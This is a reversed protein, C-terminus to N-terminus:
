FNVMAGLKFHYAEDLQPGNSHDYIPLGLEASFNVSTAEPAFALAFVGDVGQGGYFDGRNLPSMGLALASDRGQIEGTSHGDLAFSATLGHGLARATSLSLGYVNGLSYNNDNEGIRFTAHAAAGFTWNHYQHAYSIGLMPDWTGSGLQMAYPLRVGASSKEDISGTPMSLGFEVHVQDAQNQWLLYDGSLAIDGFGDSKMKSRVGMANEMTMDNNIYPLMAMFALRHSPQYGMHFMHMQMDMDIPAMMFGRAIVDETELDDSGDMVDKMRSFEYSYGFSWKKDASQHQMGDHAYAGTALLSCLAAVMITHKM